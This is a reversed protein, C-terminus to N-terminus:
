PYIRQLKIINTGPLVLVDIKGQEELWQLYELVSMKVNYTELYEAFRQELAKTLTIRRNTFLDSLLEQVIM